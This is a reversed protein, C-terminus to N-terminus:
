SSGALKGDRRASWVVQMVCKDSLCADAHALGGPQFWYSGPGLPKADSEKEGAGWHKMTGEIVVLHYDATHIHMPGAGKKMELLVASPGTNPDGWLVAMRPGDPLRAVVPAFRASEIPVVVMAKTTHGDTTAACSAVFAAVFPLAIRLIRHHMESAQSQRTALDSLVLGEPAQQAGAPGHPGM